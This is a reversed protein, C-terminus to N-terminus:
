LWPPEDGQYAIFLKDIPQTIVAQPSKQTTTAKTAVDLVITQWKGFLTRDKDEPVYWKKQTADWKAGLAKADDKEAYPVNIYTKSM